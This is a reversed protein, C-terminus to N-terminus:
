DVKRYQVSRLSNITLVQSGQEDTSFTFVMDEVGKRVFKNNAVPILEQLNGQFRNYLKTGDTEIFRFVDLSALYYTGAYKKLLNPDIMRATVPKPWPVNVKKNQIDPGWTWFTGTTTIANVKGDEDRTFVYWTNESRAPLFRDKGAARLVTKETGTQQMYLTDGSTTIHMYIPVDSLQPTTRLGTRYINYVGTYDTLPAEAKSPLPDPFSLLRSLIKKVIAESQEYVGYFQTYVIYINQEPVHVTCIPNTGIGIHALLRMNNYQSISWGLGYHTSRGDKLIYPTWAKELWERPLLKEERLAIDWKMLDDLCSVIAYRDYFYFANLNRWDSWTWKGDADPYYYASVLKKIGNAGLRNATVRSFSKTMGAPQFINKAMYDNFAMGSAKEIIFFALYYGYGNWGWDTGPTFYLNHQMVYQLFDKESLLGLSISLDFLTKGKAGTAGTESYLGSTHTLLQEITIVQGHTDFRPFYKRIDDTLQLKGERALQLVAVAIMQKSVSALAFLHDPSAPVGLEMNAMGYAKKLLPRGNKAVLVYSAPRETGPAAAVLSDIYKELYVDQAPLFLPLILLPLFLKKMLCFIPCFCGPVFVM